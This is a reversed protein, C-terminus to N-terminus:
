GTPTNAEVAASLAANAADLEDKMAIFDEPKGGADIAAQIRASIGEILRVASEQVTKTEAVEARLAELEQSMVAGQNTLREMLVVVRNLTSEIRRLSDNQRNEAQLTRVDQELRELREHVGRSESM